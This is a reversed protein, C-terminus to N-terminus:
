KYMKKLQFFCRATARVDSLADHAGEFGVGFLVNHLEQLKPNKYGTGRKKSIKCVKATTTMTCYKQLSDFTASNFDASKMAGEIIKTDFSSNHALLCKCNELAQQFHSLAQLISVGQKECKERSIKHINFAGESCEVWYDPQIFDNAAFLESGEKTYLAWGISMIKDKHEGTFGTTETDFVLYTGKASNFYTKYFDYPTTFTYSDIKFSLSTLVGVLGGKWFRNTHSPDAKFGLGLLFEKTIM